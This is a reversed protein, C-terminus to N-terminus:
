GRGTSAAREGFRCSAGVEGHAAREEAKLRWRDQGIQLVRGVLEPHDGVILEGAPAPDDAELLHVLAHRNQAASIM